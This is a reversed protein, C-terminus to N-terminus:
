PTKEDDHFGIKRKNRKDDILNRLTQMVVVANMDHEDMRDELEKLKKALKANDALMQRMKVFVRMVAINVMVAQKSRLVSSLMAVGEQTFAYPMSGGLSSRSPIVNQSLLDDVEDDVLQFMFDDPFRDINRKVQQRLAIPKVGYLNSLDRDLLVTKGRILRIKGEIREAPMIANTEDM